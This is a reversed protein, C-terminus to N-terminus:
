QLLNKSVLRRSVYSRRVTTFFFEFWGMERSICTFSFNGTPPPFYCLSAGPDFRVVRDNFRQRRISSSRIQDDGCTGGIDKGGRERKGLRIISRVISGSRIAEKELPSRCLARRRQGAGSDRDISDRATPIRGTPSVFIRLPRSGSFNPDPAKLPWNPM